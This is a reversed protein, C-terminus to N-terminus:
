SDGELKELIPLLETLNAITYNPRVSNLERELHPPSMLVSTIGAENAGAIDNAPRDGVFVAEEPQVDLLELAHWYINPHPKMFGVDGSTLRVDLYDLIGYARLEVDRMWMPQIANTILGIKYGANKLQDLVPLTDEFPVVGPVTNWDYARLVADIDLQAADLGCAILSDQMVQAFSVMTWEKKAETWAQILTERFQNWFDEFPPLTHGSAVLYHYVNQMHATEVAAMSEELGSWDILTDDMDFLVAKIRQNERHTM